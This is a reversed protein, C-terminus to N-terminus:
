VGSSLPKPRWPGIFKFPHDGSNDNEGLHSWLVNLLHQGYMQKLMSMGSDQLTYKTETSGLSIAKRKTKKSITKNENLATSFINSLGLYAGGPTVVSFKPSVLFVVNKLKGSEVYLAQEYEIMDNTQANYWTSSFLEPRKEPPSPVSNGNEDYFPFGISRYISYSFLSDKKIYRVGSRKLGTKDLGIYFPEFAKIEDKDYRNRLLLSINPGSFHATDTIYAAWQINKGEVFKTLYPQAFAGGCCFPLLFLLFTKKLM